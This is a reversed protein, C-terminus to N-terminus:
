KEEGKEAYTAKHEDFVKQFYDKIKEDNMTKCFEDLSMEKRMNAPLQSYLLEARLATAQVEAISKPLETLDGDIPTNQQLLSLDGTRAIRRIINVVGVQDANKQILDQINTKEVVVEPVMVCIPKTKEEDEYEGTFQGKLVISVDEYFEGYPAHKWVFKDKRPSFPSSLM